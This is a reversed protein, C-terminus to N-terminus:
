SIILRPQKLQPRKNQAIHGRMQPQKRWTAQQKSPFFLYFIHIVFACLIYPFETDKNVMTNFVFYM